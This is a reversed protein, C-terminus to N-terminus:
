RLLGPLFVAIQPFVFVLVLGVFIAIIFPIVGVFIKGLAVNPAVSKVVFVNMGIPPTILGLETVIVVIIGFWIMDVNAQYLSPLFVPVLLLLIGISEFIMGMIIAIFAVFMVLQTASLGLDDVIFILDFPM